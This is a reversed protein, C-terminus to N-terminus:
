KLKKEVIFKVLHSKGQLTQGFPALSQERAEKTENQGLFTTVDWIPLTVLTVEDNLQEFM